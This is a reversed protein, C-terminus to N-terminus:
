GTRGPSCFAAHLTEIIDHVLGDSVAYYVTQAERRTSVLNKERLVALHQSLASQSLDVLANIEGVSMEREILLCLVRLRQPNAMAKLLESAAEAQAQMQQGPSTAPAKARSPSM